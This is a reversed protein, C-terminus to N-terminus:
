QQTLLAAIDEPLQIGTKQNFDEINEYVNHFAAIVDIGMNKADKLDTKAKEWEKLHLWCEGRNYYSDGRNYYSSDHDPKITIAKTYNEIAKNVDGINFYAVGLNNYLNPDNPDLQIARTYDEIAYEYNNKDYYASVM